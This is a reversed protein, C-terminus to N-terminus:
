SGSKIIRLMCELPGGHRQDAHEVSRKWTSTYNDNIDFHLQRRGATLRDLDRAMEGLCLSRLLVPLSAQPM